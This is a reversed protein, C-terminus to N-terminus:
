LVSFNDKKELQVVECSPLSVFEVSTIFGSVIKEGYRLVLLPSIREEQLILSFERKRKERM